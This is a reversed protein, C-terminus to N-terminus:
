FDKPSVTSSQTILSMAVITVHSSRGGRGSGINSGVRATRHINLEPEVTVVGDEGTATDYKTGNRRGLLAVKWLM